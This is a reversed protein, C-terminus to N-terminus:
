EDRKEVPYKANLWATMGGLINTVETYGKKQLISAGMSGKFGSDCYVIIHKDRPIEGVQENLHGIYIHHSGPIAGLKRTNEIDRVDLIYLSEEGLREKLEHVSWIETKEIGEANKFWAAFGPTLYGTINDYGMRIFDQVIGKLEVSFDFILIIPDEYNLIWGMFATLGSRWIHLSGPLHGGGFATPSRIDLIQAGKEQYEKVEQLKLPILYPYGFLAPAGITNYEEMKKFYPPAYQNETEKIRIFDERSKQLAPNTKKEYGITTYPYDAIMHGCVSGAGHAPLVLVDDDLNLIKTFISEYLLASMEGRRGPTLDTRGVEGAFLADGTFIMYPIDSVERNRLLLSISEPTHGPTELVEIEIKGIAFRDGEAVGNGYSFDYRASHYIEAGARRSLDRSGIVYDENRHTEFIHTINVNKEQAIELYVDGDRRPDIVAARGDSGILYSNHALGESVIKEFIM